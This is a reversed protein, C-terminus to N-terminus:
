APKGVANALIVLINLIQFFSLLPVLAHLYKAWPHKEKNYRYSIGTSNNQLFFRVIHYAHKPERQVGHARTNAIM